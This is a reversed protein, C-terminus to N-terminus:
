ILWGKERALSPHTHIWDHCTRCLACWTAVNLYNGNLRGAKHHVDTAKKTHCRECVPHATLFQRRKRSYIMASGARKASQFPLPTRPKPGAKTRNLWDTFSPQM